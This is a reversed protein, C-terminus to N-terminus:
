APEKKAAAIANLPDPHWRSINLALMQRLLHRAERERGVDDGEPDAGFDDAHCPPDEWPQLHLNELQSGFAQLKAVEVWTHEGDGLMNDIQRARIPDKRAQEMALELAARDTKTM